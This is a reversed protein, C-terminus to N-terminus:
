PVCDARADVELRVGGAAAREVHGAVTTSLSVSMAEYPKGAPEARPVFQDADPEPAVRVYEKVAVAVEFPM